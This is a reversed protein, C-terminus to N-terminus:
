RERYILNTLTQGVVYLSHASCKDPTDQLTHWYPYDFDIIDIADFGAHIFPIHDDEIAKEIKTKFEPFDLKKAINWVENVLTPSNHYSFYEIKINLDKDGIMDVIIVKEPKIGSFHNVFYNAGLSWSGKVSYTGMDELDFFVLDVGFIQPENRSLIAALELLVAVGSAGDNAGLIPKDRLNEDEEKDAWPRTDYHAGLLIRRSMEPYMKGIINVGEFEKGDIEATFKQEEVEANNESLISKILNRCLVIEESGPYRPGLDCQKQLFSFAEEGNFKPVSKSCAFLSLLIFFLIIKKM